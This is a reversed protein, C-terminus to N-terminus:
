SLQTPFNRKAKSIPDLQTQSNSEGVSNILAYSTLHNLSQAIQSLFSKGAQDAQKNILDICLDMNEEVM